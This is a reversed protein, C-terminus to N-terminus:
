IITRILEMGISTWVLYAREKKEGDLSYYHFARDKALGRDTYKPTLKYRGGNWYQVGEEVLKKNVAKVTTDLIKAIESITLCGDAPRNEDEIQQRRIADGQQLIEKETVLLKPESSGSLQKSIREKELQQWRLVLRARAADNFKTAVYLCEAKTLSFVPILRVGGQPMDVKESTLSFNGGCEQEWASEMKRIAKLVDKHPKGTIAAIELSTMRQADMATLNQNDKM